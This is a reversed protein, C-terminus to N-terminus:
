HTSPDEFSTKIDQNVKDTAWFIGGLFGAIAVMFLLLTGVGKYKQSRLDRDLQAEAEQYEREANKSDTLAQDNM